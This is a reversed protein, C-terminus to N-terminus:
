PKNRRNQIRRNLCDGMEAVRKAFATETLTVSRALANRALRAQDAARTYASAIPNAV